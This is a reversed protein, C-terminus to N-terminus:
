KKGRIGSYTRRNGAKLRMLEIELARKLPLVSIYTDKGKKMFLEDIPCTRWAQTMINEVHVRSSLKEVLKTLENFEM